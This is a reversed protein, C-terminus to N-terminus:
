PIKWNFKGVSIDNYVGKKSPKIGPTNRIEMNGEIGTCAGTGGVFKIVNKSSGGGLVGEGEFTAYVKDGNPRTWVVFGSGKWKGKIAHLTGIDRFSANHLPSNEPASVVVGTEEYNMQVREKEMPLIVFTGTKGSRYDGSGEKAMEAGVVTGATILLFLAFVVALSARIM